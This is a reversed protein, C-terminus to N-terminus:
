RPDSGAAARSMGAKHLGQILHEVMDAQFWTNLIARPNVSFSPIQTM